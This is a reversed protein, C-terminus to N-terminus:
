NFNVNEKERIDNNELLEQLVEIKNANYHRGEKILEEIEKEVLSVPIVNKNIFDSMLQSTINKSIKNEEKLEKLEEQIDGKSKEFSYGIGDERECLWDNFEEDKSM